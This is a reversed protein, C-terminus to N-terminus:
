RESPKGPREGVAARAAPAPASACGLPASGLPPALVAARGPPPRLRPSGRGPASLQPSRRAPATVHRALRPIGPAPRRGPHREWVVASSFSGPTEAPLPRPPSRSPSALSVSRISGLRAPPLVIVAELAHGWFPLFLILPRFNCPPISPDVGPLNKWDGSNDTLTIPHELLHHGVQPHAPPFM